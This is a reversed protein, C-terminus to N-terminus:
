NNNNIIINSTPEISGRAAFRTKKHINLQTVYISLVLCIVATNSFVYDYWRMSRLFLTQKECVGILCLFGCAGHFVSGVLRHTEGFLCRALKANLGEEKEYVVTSELSVIRRENQISANTNESKEASQFDLNDIELTKHDEFIMSEEPKADFGVISRYISVGSKISIYISVVFLYLFGACSHFGRPIYYSNTERFLVYPVFFLFCSAVILSAHINRRSRIALRNSYIPTNIAFTILGYACSMSVAHWRSPYVKEKSCNSSFNNIIVWLVIFGLFFLTSLLSCYSYDYKQKPRDIESQIEANQM